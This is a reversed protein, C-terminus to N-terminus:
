EKYPADHKEVSGTHLDVSLFVIEDKGDKPVSAAVAFRESGVEKSKANGLERSAVFTCKAQSTDLDLNKAIWRRAYKIAISKKGDEEIDVQRSLEAADRATLADEKEQKRRARDALYADNDQTSM